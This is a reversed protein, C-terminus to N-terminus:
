YILKKTSTMKLTAEDWVITSVFLSKTITPAPSRNLDAHRERCMRREARQRRLVFGEATSSTAPSTEDLANGIAILWWGETV